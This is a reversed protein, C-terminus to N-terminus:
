KSITRASHPTDQRFGKSKLIEVGSLPRPISPHSLVGGDQKMSKGGKSFRQLAPWLLLANDRLYEWRFYFHNFCQAHWKTLEGNTLSDYKLVPLYSSYRSYDEDAIRDRIQNFFKTGPYPTVVNFNAFTPNLHRAYMEVRSISAPTDDLFGIMFGAVTRIGSKRCLEIFEKQRDESVSARRYQNLRSDDPSEIGITISTLGVRKLARLVEPPILEIRTEISFQVKRPLQGILEALKYLRTRSQGFLPDRFKFSRFGWRRIGYRMEEVVAEPDRFRVSNDLLTYPCYECKYSCGRSAQILATPFLWFDYGIYFKEPNFPSWDPMPLRDLDDLIGLNVAATPREILEDLKWYLQEAEGRIVTVDLDGFAEPMVTATLGVVFIRTNPYKARTRAIVEHELRLTILSPCFVILDAADPMRDVAYEVTHGLRHFIATLHALLLSVPRHDRTFFRRIVWGRWGGHGPYNGVGFGGAFDKSVDCKNTNWLVVHM